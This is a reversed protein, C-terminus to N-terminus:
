SNISALKNRMNNIAEERGDDFANKYINECDAQIDLIQNDRDKIIEILELVKDSSIEYGYFIDHKIQALFDM